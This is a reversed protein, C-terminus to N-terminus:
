GGSGRRHQGWHPRHLTAPGDVEVLLDSMELSVLESRRLMTDYAAALLARNWVDILREGAAELM